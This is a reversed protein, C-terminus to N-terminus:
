YDYGKPPETQGNLCPGCFVWGPETLKFTIYLPRGTKRDHDYAEGVQVLGQSCTVPPVCDRMDRVIPESVLQGVKARFDGDRMWDEM